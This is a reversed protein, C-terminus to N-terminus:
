LRIKRSFAASNIEPLCYPKGSKCQKRNNAWHSLTSWEVSRGRGKSSDLVLSIFPTSILTMLSKGGGMVLVVM